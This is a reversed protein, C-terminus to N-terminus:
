KRGKRVLDIVNSDVPAFAIHGISEEAKVDGFKIKMDGMSQARDPAPLSTGSELGPVYKSDRVLCPDHFKLVRNLYTRSGEVAKAVSDQNDLNEGYAVEGRTTVRNFRFFTYAPRYESRSWTHFPDAMYASVATPVLHSKSLSATFMHVFTTFRLTGNCELCDFITWSPVALPSLSRRIRKPGCNTLGCEVEVEVYVTGLSCVGASVSHHGDPTMLYSSGNAASSVNYSYDETSFIIHRSSLTTDNPLRPGASNLDIDTLLCGTGSFMDCNGAKWSSDSRLSQQLIWQRDGTINHCDLTWYWTELAFSLYEGLYSKLDSIYLGYHSAYTLAEDTSFYDFLNYGGHYDGRDDEQRELREIM